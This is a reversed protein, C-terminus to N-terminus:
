TGSCGSVGVLVLAWGGVLALGGKVRYRQYAADDAGVPPGDEDAPPVLQRFFALALAVVVFVATITAGYDRFTAALGPQAPESGIKLVGYTVFSAAAAGACLWVLIVRLRQLM